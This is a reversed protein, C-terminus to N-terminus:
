AHRVETRMTYITRLLEVKYEEFAMEISMEITAEDVGAAVLAEALHLLNEQHRRTSEELTPPVDIEQIADAVGTLYRQPDDLPM